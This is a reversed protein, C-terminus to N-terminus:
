FMKRRIHRARTREWPVQAMSANACTGTASAAGSETRNMMLVMWCDSSSQFKPMAVPERHKEKSLGDGVATLTDERYSKRVCGSRLNGIINVEVPYRTKRANRRIRIERYASLWGIENTKKALIWADTIRM